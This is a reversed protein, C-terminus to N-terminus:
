ELRKFTSQFCDYCDDEVILIDQNTFSFSQRIPYKDYTIMLASDQNYVSKSKILHYKCEGLLTDNQILRFVSDNTYEVIKRVGTSQPTYTIGAIGGSSSIWDWRGVLTTLKQSEKKCSLIVLGVLSIILLIKKM